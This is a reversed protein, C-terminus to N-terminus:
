GRRPPSAARPKKPKGKIALLAGGHRIVAVLLLLLAFVLLKSIPAEILLKVLEVLLKLVAETMLKVWLEALRVM